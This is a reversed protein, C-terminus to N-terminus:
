KRFRKMIVAVLIAVIAVAVVVFLIPNHSGGSASSLAEIKM